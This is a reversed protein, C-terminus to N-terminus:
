TFDKINEPKTIADYFVLEEDNLGISNGEDRAKRMEEALKILEDIVEANIIMGNRFLKMLEAMEESFLVSKVLNTRM